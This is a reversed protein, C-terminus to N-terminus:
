TGIRGLHHTNRLTMLVLGSECCKEIAKDMAIKGVAQGYGRKGDFMMISGESKFLEPDQNPKLLDAQLM